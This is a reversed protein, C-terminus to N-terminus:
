YRGSAPGPQLTPNFAHYWGVWLISTDHRLSYGYEMRLTFNEVFSFLPLDFYLGAGVAHDVGQSNDFLYSEGVDYFLSAHISRLTIVRDYLSADIDTVLPFRWEASSLWFKSGETDESRQGRFRLAGGFRFHEGNDPAGVGGAVRGALKTESLFGLGDPLRHVGSLQSWGRHFSEGDGFAHFGYEYYADFGIGGDPDWYPMKTDLHYWVGAARVDRYDEVGPTAPPRYDEDPFFNDGFRFYFDLYALNPYIFSTTYVQDWRLYLWGQDTPDDYLGTALTHEYRAGLSWNPLPVNFFRSDVGVSLQDDETTYATFPSVRFKNNAILTGRLGFRGEEDINPGARISLRDLPHVLPVEDLPTFLPTLHVEPECKWRNNLLNADLVWQDPDVVVQKPRQTGVFTVEWHCDDVRRVSANGLSYDQADPALSIQDVVPGGKELQYGVEVPENIEQLQTVRVTTRYGEECPRVSVKEIKWDAVKPSRLWDDFFQQWSCGTFAELESQLDAVRLIRFRYKAYVLKLFEFFRETGLRHHIMGVIKNGRDYVLFFLNHLHGIEDLAALTKGDGGRGRYLYYGNHQLTQYRINPLWSLKHPWDLLSADKGYKERMRWETLHSVLSEDMWSERYGDTGVTSYWWQHCIEHSVLHDFYVHGLEPASFVRADVLIMGSSENGNWGFYAEAIKFEPHAYPGFWERYQQLCEVAVQLAKRGYFRHEPFALVQVKVGDVEAQHVEFRKSAVIAFERLGSGQIALHQNGNEDIVREVVQGSSAVSEGVPLTLNVTYNGAENLWPQHWAVYPSDDWGTDDYYAVVPYWNLLNTVGRYQGFRGQVPPLDLEYDLSVEVTEHPGVPQPLRVIMLTDTITDFAFPLSTEGSQVAHFRVRRGEADIGERPNVRLSELTRQYLKLQKSNPRHRPYVHFVLRDTPTSAPNQWHVTQHVQARGCATDLTLDIKYSPLYAPPEALEIPVPVQQPSVACPGSDVQTATPQEAQAKSDPKAQAEVAGPPGAFAHVGGALYILLLLWRLQRM